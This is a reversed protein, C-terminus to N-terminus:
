DWRRQTVNNLILKTSIFIPRPILEAELIKEPIWSAVYLCVGMGLAPPLEPQLPALLRRIRQLARVRKGGVGLCQVQTGPVSFVPLGLTSTYPDRPDMEPGKGIRM